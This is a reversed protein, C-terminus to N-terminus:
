GISELSSFSGWDSFCWAGWVAQGLATQRPNRKRQYYAQSVPDSRLSAFTSPFTARKLRKNGGHSICRAASRHAPAAHSPLSGPTLPWTLEPAQLDKDLTQALLSPPPRSGQNWARTTLVQCM